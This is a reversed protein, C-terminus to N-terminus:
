PGLGLSSPASYAWFGTCHRSYLQPMSSPVRRRAERGRGGHKGRTTLPEPEQAREEDPRQDDHEDLLRADRDAAEVIVLRMEGFRADEELVAEDPHHSIGGPSRLFIMTTPVREALIM